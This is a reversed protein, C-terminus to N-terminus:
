SQFMLDLDDSIWPYSTLFNNYWFNFFESSKPPLLGVNRFRRRHFKAHVLLGLVRKGVGYSDNLPNAGQPMIEVLLKSMLTVIFSPMGIYAISPCVVSLRVSPGAWHRINGTLRPWLLQDMLASVYSLYCVPFLRFLPYRKSHFRRSRSWAPLPVGTDSLVTSSLVFVAVSSYLRVDDFM